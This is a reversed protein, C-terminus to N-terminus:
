QSTSHERDSPQDHEGDSDPRLQDRGVELHGQEAPGPGGAVM